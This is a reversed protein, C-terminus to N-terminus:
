DADRGDGRADLCAVVDEWSADMPDVGSAACFRGWRRWGRVCYQRRGKSVGSGEILRKGEAIKDEISMEVRLM